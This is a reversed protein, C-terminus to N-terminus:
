VIRNIRQHNERIWQQLEQERQEIVEIIQQEAAGDGVVPAFQQQYGYLIADNYLRFNRMKNDIKKPKIRADPAPVVPADNEYDSILERLEQEFLKEVKGFLGIPRERFFVENILGDERPIVAIQPSLIVPGEKLIKNLKSTTCRIIESPKYLEEIIDFCEMSPIEVYRYGMGLISTNQRCFGRHWQREFLYHIYFPKQNVKLWRPPPRYTDLLEPNFTDTKLGKKHSYVINVKNKGVNNFDTTFGQIYLINGDYRVFTNTYRKSIDDVGMDKLLPNVLVKSRGLILNILSFNRLKEIM